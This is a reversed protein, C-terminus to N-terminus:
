GHHPGGGAGVAMVTVAPVGPQEAEVDKEPEAGETAVDPRRLQLSFVTGQGPVSRVMIKGEHAQVIQYVIALGLGTGGEFHKQFPEFIKEMQQQSLGHGNDAFSIMWNPGAGRLSVHLSGGQPMARLANSCLNWFVQKIKDGDVLAPAREAEIRRIIQVQTAEPPTSSELLTLTDELLPILDQCQFDYRKERAYALFDSIINNLRESERTVIQVLARQDESLTSIGELVSVSGAISSLPNRIEHAIAAALRGVAALRDRLRVERELRRIETLDDFTYVWGLSGRDPVVLPSAIVSFTKIEGTTTRYRVEAHAPASAPAPLSDLFLRAVPKGLLDAESKELFTQSAPNALTIHGELDATLLGGSISRIVNEHLAQLSELAGSTDHLQVDVQRLRASLRAALYAIALYAFLNILLLAFLIKFNAHAPSYSPIIGFFELEVVAGYLVFALAATLYAWSRPLLICAVVIILPYLFNFSSDIGGSVYVMGTAMAMDTLVQLVAQARHEHWFSHLVIHFVSLTYWLLILSIFEREPLQTPTLRTIALEIGVLFTIILIRVKVLWGLWSREDFTIEAAM